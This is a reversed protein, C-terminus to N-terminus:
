KGVLNIKRGNGKMFQAMLGNNDEKVMGKGMLGNGKM